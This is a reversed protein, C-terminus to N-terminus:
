FTFAIKMIENLLKALLLSLLISDFFLVNQHQLHDFPRNPNPPCTSRRGVSLPNEPQTRFLFQLQVRVEPLELETGIVKIRCEVVVVFVLMPSLPPSIPKVIQWHEALLVPQLHLVEVLVVLPNLVLVLSPSDAEM